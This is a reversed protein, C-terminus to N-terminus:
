VHKLILKNNNNNNNNNNNFSRWTTLNEVFVTYASRINRICSITEAWRLKRKLKMVKIVVSALPLLTFNYLEENQLKKSNRKQIYLKLAFTHVSVWV